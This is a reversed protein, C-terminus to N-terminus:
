QRKSQSEKRDPLDEDSSRISTRRGNIHKLHVLVKASDNNDLLLVDEKEM